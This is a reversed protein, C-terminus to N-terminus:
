PYYAVLLGFLAGSFMATKTLLLVPLVRPFTVRSHVQLLSVPGLFPLFCLCRIWIRSTAVWSQPVVGLIALKIGKRIISHRFANLVM